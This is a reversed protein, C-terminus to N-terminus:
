RKSIRSQSRYHDAMGNDKAQFMRRSRRGLRGKEGIGPPNKTWYGTNLIEFLKALDASLVTKREAEGHFKGILRCIVAVIPVGGMDGENPISPKGFDLFKELDIIGRKSPGASLGLTLTVFRPVM